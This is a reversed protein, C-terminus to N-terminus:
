DPRICVIALLMKEDSLVGAPWCGPLSPHCGPYFGPENISVAKPRDPHRQAYRRPVVAKGWRIAPASPSRCQKAAQQTLRFQTVSTNVSVKIRCSDTEGSSGERMWASASCSLTAHIGHPPLVVQFFRLVGDPCSVYHFCCVDIGKVSLIKCRFFISIKASRDTLSSAATAETVSSAAKSSPSITKLSPSIPSVSNRINSPSTATILSQLASFSDLQVTDARHSSRPSPGKRHHDASPLWGPLSPRGIESGAVLLLKLLDHALIGLDRQM